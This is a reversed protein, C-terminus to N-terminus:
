HEISLAESIQPTGKHATKKEGQQNKGESKGGCGLGLM